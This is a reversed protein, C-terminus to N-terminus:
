IIERSKFFYFIVRDSYPAIQVGIELMRRDLRHYLIDADWFIGEIYERERRTLVSLLASIDVDPRPGFPCSLYSNEEGNQRVQEALFSFLTEPSRYELTLSAVYHYSVPLQELLIGSEKLYRTVTQQIRAFSVPYDLENMIRATTYGLDTLHRIARGSAADYVFDSLAEQFYRTNKFQDKNDKQKWEMQKVEKEWLVMVINYFFFDSM